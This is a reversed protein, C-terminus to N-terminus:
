VLVAEPTFGTHGVGSFYRGFDNLYREYTGKSFGLSEKYGLMGCICESIDMM